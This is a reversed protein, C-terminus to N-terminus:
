PKLKLLDDLYKRAEKNKPELKLTRKYEKIADEIKNLNQYCQGLWLHTQAVEEKYKISKRLLDVADEWKKQSEEPTSKKEIMIALAIMRYSDALDNKYKFEATDIMKIALEFAKRGADFNKMQSYCFGLSVYTGPYKPNRAIAEKLSLIAKEYQELEMMCKAYNIPAGVATSDLDFRKHFFEAAREYFRLNMWISGVQDYLYSLVIISQATDKLAEEYTVAALSDKKTKSYASGLWRLDDFDLTDITALKKFADIARTYQNEIMFGYAHARNAIPSNPELKLYEKAAEFADKYVRSNFLAELYMLRVEKSPNKEKKFYEQLTGACKLYQKARYFLEALELRAADNKPELTLIKGYVRAAETYQRGDKYTNALKYLVRTQSSDIELSKEYSSIAMPAVKQKVYSDGIIEYVAANKPDIERAKSAVVQAGDASDVALLGWGLEILLPPYEPKKRPTMKLGARATAIADVPNKKALQVRALVTYGEMMEDELEVVKKAANEASDLSGVQLLGKAFLLWGNEDSTSSQLYTQCLAIAERIKNQKMLEQAKDLQPQSILITTATILIVTVISFNRKM